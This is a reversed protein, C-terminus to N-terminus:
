LAIPGHYRIMAAELRDLRDEVSLQQPPSIYEQLAHTLFLVAEDESSALVGVLFELSASTGYYLITGASTNLKKFAAELLTDMTDECQDVVFCDRHEEITDYIKRYLDSDEGPDNVYIAELIEGLTELKKVLM